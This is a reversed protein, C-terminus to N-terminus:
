LRVAAVGGRLATVCGGAVAAVGDGLAAVGHDVVRRQLLLLVAGLATAALRVRRLRVLARDVLRAVRRGAAIRRRGALSPRGAGSGHCRAAATSAPYQM